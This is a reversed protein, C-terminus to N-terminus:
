ARYIKIKEEVKRELDKLLSLVDKLEAVVDVYGCPSWIFHEKYEQETMEKKCDKCILIDEKEM